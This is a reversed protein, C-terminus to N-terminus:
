FKSFIHRPCVQRPGLSHTCMKGPFVLLLVCDGTCMGSSKGHSSTCDNRVVKLVKCVSNPAVGGWYEVYQLHLQVSRLNSSYREAVSRFWQSDARDCWHAKSVLSISSWPRGAWFKCVAQVRGRDKSPLFHFIRDLVDNPIDVVTLSHRCPLLM